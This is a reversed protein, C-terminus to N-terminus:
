SRNFIAGLQKIFNKLKIGINLIPEELLGDYKDGRRLYLKTLVSSTMGWKMIFQYYGNNKIIRQTSKSGFHYVRSNSVGKFLRIGLKWLKM